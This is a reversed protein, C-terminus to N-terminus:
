DVHREHVEQSLIAELLAWFLETSQELGLLHIEQLRENGRAMTVWAASVSATQGAENVPIRVSPGPSPVVPDQPEYPYRLALAQPFPLRTPQF